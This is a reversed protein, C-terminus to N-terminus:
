PQRVPAGTRVVLDAREAVGALVDDEQAAWAEWWPAYVEGDRSLARARRVPTPAELWVLLDLLEGAPSAGTGCGEVLLRPAWPLHREPGPRDAVWDWTPYRADAGSRLPRLVDDALLRPGDALGHWGPYLDELHLLPWGLERALADALSTKGSGSHGDIGVLLPAADGKAREAARVAALVAGLGAPM